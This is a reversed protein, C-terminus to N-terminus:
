SARAALAGNPGPRPAQTIAQLWGELPGRAYRRRWWYAGSVAAIYWLMAYLVVWEHSAPHWGHFVPLLIAPVHLIYLTLALQGASAFWTIPQWREFREAVALAVVITLVAFAGGGVVFGPRTPRPWTRLMDFLPTGHWAGSRVMANALETGVFVTSAVGLLWWRTNTSRLDIRSLWLGVLVLAFWPLAPHNGWLLLKGVAGELTWFTIDPRPVNTWLLASGATLAAIGGWLVDSRARLFLCAAALYVGYFALIDWSWWHQHVMGIALLVAARRLLRGRLVGMTGSREASRAQLGIGLGALVVFVAAWKGEMRDLGWTLWEIQAESAAAKGKFNVIVMGGVAWARAVDLGLLRRDSM